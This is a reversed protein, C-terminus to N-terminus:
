AKTVTLTEIPIEIEYTHSSKVIREDRDHEAAEPTDIVFANPYMNAAAIFRLATGQAAYQRNTIYGTMSESYLPSSPENGIYTPMTITGPAPPQDSLDPLAPAAVAAETPTGTASAQSSSIGWATVAEATELNLVHEYEVVRGKAEVGGATMHAAHYLELGPEILSKFRTTGRHAELIDHEGVAQVCKIATTFETRSEEVGTTVDLIWDGNESLTGVPTTYTEVGEWESPDYDVDISYNREDIVEGVQGVSQPATVSVTYEETIDQAFRKMLTFTAAQAYLGPATNFWYTGDYWGSGPISTLVTGPKELWESGSIATQIMQKKPIIMPNAVQTGWNQVMTWTYSRERQRLRPYRYEFVIQVTNTLDARSPNDVSVSGDIVDSDTLVHHWSTALWDYAVPNNARDFDLSRPVTSFIDEAYQANDDEEDFIFKSYLASLSLGTIEERDMGNLLETRKNTAEITTIGTDIDTTPEDVVGTFLRTAVGGEIYNIEVPQGFWDSLTVPGAEPLLQFSAVRNEGTAGAITIEKVLLSSKDSGGISVQASWGPASTSAVQTQQIDLRPAAIRYQTQEISLSPAVTAYQTQEIDLTYTTM